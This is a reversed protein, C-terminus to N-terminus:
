RPRRRERRLTALRFALERGQPSQGEQNRRLEIAFALEAPKALEGYLRDLDEVVLARLEGARLGSVFATECLLRLHPPKLTRYTPAPDDLREM